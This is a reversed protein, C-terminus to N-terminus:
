YAHMSYCIILLTVTYGPARMQRDGEVQVKKDYCLESEMERAGKLSQIHRERHTCHFRPLNM